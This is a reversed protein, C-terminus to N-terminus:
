NFPLASLLRITKDNDADGQQKTDIFKESNSDQRRLFRVSFSETVELVFFYEISYELISGAKCNAEIEAKFLLEKRQDRTLDIQIQTIIFTKKIDGKM